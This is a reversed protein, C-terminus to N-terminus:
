VRVQLSASADAAADLISVLVVCRQRSLLLTGNLLPDGLGSLIDLHSCKSTLLCTM